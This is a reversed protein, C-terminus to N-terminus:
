KRGCIKECPVGDRDRDLQAFGCALLYRAEDCSKVQNCTKKECKFKSNNSSIIKEQNLSNIKIESWLGKGNEKAKKQASKFEDMKSFPYELYAFGYGEEIIKKNVNTGDELYLYGLFRNYKDKKISEYEISVKKGKLLRNAFESAEKGFYEVPKNPHVTEPTDVGILRVTGITSLVVTDGDKVRIVDYSKKTSSLNDKSAYLGLSFITLLVTLSIFRSIQQLM